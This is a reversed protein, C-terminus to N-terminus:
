KCAVGARAPWKTTLVLGQVLGASLNGMYVNQGSGFRLCLQFCTLLESVSPFSCQYIPSVEQFQLFM